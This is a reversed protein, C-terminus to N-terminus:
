SLTILVLVQDFLPGHPPGRAIVDICKDAALAGRRGFPNAARGATVVSRELARSLLAAGETRM